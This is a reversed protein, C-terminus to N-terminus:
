SCGLSEGCNMCKFCAGNRVAIHGCKPCSPADHMNVFTSTLLAAGGAPKTAVAPVSAPLKAVVDTNSEIRLPLDSVPRNLSKREIEELGPMKLEPQAEGNPSTADRYGPVFQSAM